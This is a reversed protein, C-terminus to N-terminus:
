KLWGENFIQNSLKAFDELALQEARTNPSINIQKLVHIINEKSVKLSMSLSNVLTKRRKAFAARSIKFFLNEDKVKVDLTKKITLKIVASDVNPAPIFSGKSVKFCFNANSYYNVLVSIAGCQRSSLPSCIRQAAEKQLMLVIHKINLTNCNTLLKVITESTINYPLNSCVIFEENNFYDKKIKNLDLKLIDENIINVNNFSALTENLVEILSKDIEVCVIKKAIKAMKHTLAGAGPGIELINTNNTIEALSIIKDCVGTNVLFNQGYFKKFNFNNKLLINKFNDM